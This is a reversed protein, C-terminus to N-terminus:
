QGVFGWIVDAQAASTFVLVGVAVTTAVAGLRVVWRTVRNRLMQSEQHDSVTPVHDVFWM